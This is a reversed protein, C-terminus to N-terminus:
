AKDSDKHTRQYGGLGPRYTKADLFQRMGENRGGEPDTLRLQDLKAALYDESDDWSLAEVRRFAHKAARVAARNKSLLTKALARTRERLEAKPVAINVLKMDAAKRGDFTEGTLTYYLGDRTTMVEAVSKLVNGAPIIGWNVESLGFIAEEAAIALDCAVLSNFAGGFCWGNVMAITPKPYHRLRTVQWTQAVRSIQHWAEPALSDSERFFEKLDMGASYSDGSGTLVVVGCRDDVELADLVALMESNLAPNMANRKEPRNMSVWAIGEDFEVLVLKGGPIHTDSDSM